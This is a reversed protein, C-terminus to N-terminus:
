PLRHTTPGPSRPPLHCRFEAVGPKSVVRLRQRRRRCPKGGSPTVLLYLRSADTLKHPKPRPKAARVKADTLLTPRRFLVVNEVACVV